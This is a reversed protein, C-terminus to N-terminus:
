LNTRVSNSILPPDTRSVAASTVDAPARACPILGGRRDRSRGREADMGRLRPRGRWMRRVGLTALGWFPPYSRVRRRAPASNMNVPGQCPNRMVRAPVPWSHRTIRRRRPPCRDVHKITSAWRAPTPRPSRSRGVRLLSWGEVRAPWLVRTASGGPAFGRAHIARVLDERYGSIPRSM